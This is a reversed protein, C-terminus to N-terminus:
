EEAVPGDKSVERDKHELEWRRMAELLVVDHMINGIRKQRLREKADPCEDAIFKRWLQNFAQKFCRCHVLTRLSKGKPHPSLLTMCLTVPVM